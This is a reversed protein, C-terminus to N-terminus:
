ASKGEEVTHLPDGPNGSPGPAQMPQAKPLKEILQESHDRAKFTGIVGILGTVAAGIFGLAAVIQALHKEVDMSVCIVAAVISMSTIAGLTSLYAILNHRNEV